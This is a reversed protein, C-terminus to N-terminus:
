GPHASGAAPTDAEVPGRPVVREVLRGVTLGQVIISFIVTAYAATLLADRAPVDPLKMALAVSVGGKLGGWVLVRRTGPVLGFRLKLVTLPLYVGVVVALPGSVHLRGAAFGLGLVAAVSLLIELNPEDVSRIALYAVYGVFLGLLIGGLVEQGLLIAISVAGIEAGHHAPDPAGGSGTAVSAWSVLALFLVVGVGDNFLSEGVVKVELSKPAGAAKMIGLVAIPDTPSILAGFVLCWPLPVELGVAAFVGWALGGAVATSVLIGATALTLIPVKKDFLLDLEVHLAGAFLLVSLM